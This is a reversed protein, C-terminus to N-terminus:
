RSGWKPFLWHAADVLLVTIHSDESVPVCCLLLGFFESFATSAPPGNGPMVSNISSAGLSVIALSSLLSDSDIISRCSSHSALFTLLASALTLAAFSSSDARIRDPGFRLRLRRLKERCLFLDDIFSFKGAPLRFCLFRDAFSLFIRASSLVSHLEDCSIKSFFSLLLISVSFCCAVSLMSNGFSSLILALSCFMILSSTHSSILDSPASGASAIMEISQELPWGPCICGRAGGFSAWSTGM